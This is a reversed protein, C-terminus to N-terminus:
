ADRANVALNILVQEFQGPDVMVPGVGSVLATVLRVDEGILRRLMDVTDIAAASPDLLQPAAVEKRAFALLQRTFAASLGGAQRIEALLEHSPDGPPHTRILLDTYGNIVTLLNNFDHAVGGALQGFADMKQSQRLKEELTHRGTVDQLSGRVRVVKGSE